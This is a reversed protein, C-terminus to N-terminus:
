KSGPSPRLSRFRKPPASSKNESTTMDKRRMSKLRTTMDVARTSHVNALKLLHNNFDPLQM